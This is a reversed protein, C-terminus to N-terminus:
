KNTNSIKLLLLSFFGRFTDLGRIFILVLIEFKFLNEDIKSSSDRVTQPFFASQM